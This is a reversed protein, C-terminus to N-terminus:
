IPFKLIKLYTSASGGPRRACLMERTSTRAHIGERLREQQEGGYEESANWGDRKSGPM